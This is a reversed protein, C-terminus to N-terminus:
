SIIQDLDLTHLFLQHQKNVSENEYMEPPGTQAKGGGCSNAAPLYCLM